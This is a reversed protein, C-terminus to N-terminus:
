TQTERRHSRSKRFESTKSDGPEGPTPEVTGQVTELVEPKAVEAGGTFPVDSLPVPEIIELHHLSVHPGDILMKVNCSGTEIGKFVDYGQGVEIDELAHRIKNVINNELCFQKTDM